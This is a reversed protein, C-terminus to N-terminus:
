VTVTNLHRQDFKPGYRSFSQCQNQREFKQGTRDVSRGFARINLRDFIQGRNTRHLKCWTQM